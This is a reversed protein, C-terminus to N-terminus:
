SVNLAKDMLHCMSTQLVGHPCLSITWLSGIVLSRPIRVQENCKLAFEIKQKRTPHARPQRCPYM